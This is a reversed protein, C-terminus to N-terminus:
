HEFGNKNIQKFIEKDSINIYEELKFHSLETNIIKSILNIVVIVSKNKNIIVSVPAGNGKFMIQAVKLPITGGANVIKKYKVFFKEAKFKVLLENDIEGCFIINADIPAIASPFVFRTPMKYRLYAILSFIIRSSIAIEFLCNQKLDLSDALNSALQYGALTEMANNGVFLSASISWDAYHSVNRPNSRIEPVLNLKKFLLDVFQRLLNRGKTYDLKPLAFHLACALQHHRVTHFPKYSATNDRIIYSDSLIGHGNLNKKIIYDISQITPDHCILNQQKEDTIFNDYLKINKYTNIYKEIPYDKKQQIYSCPLIEEATNFFIKKVREIIRLGKSSYLDIGSMLPFKYILGMRDIIKKAEDM